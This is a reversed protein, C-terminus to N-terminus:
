RASPTLPGCLERSVQRLPWRFQKSLSSSQTGPDKEGCLLHGVIRQVASFTRTDLSDALGSAQMLQFVLNVGPPVEAAGCRSDSLSISFNVELQATVSSHAADYAMAAVLLSILVVASGQVLNHLVGGSCTAFYIDLLADVRHGDHGAKQDSDPLEREIAAALHEFSARIDKSSCALDWSPLASLGRQVVRRTVDQLPRGALRCLDYHLSRGLGVNSVFRWANQRLSKSSPLSYHREGSSCAPSAAGTTEALRRASVPATAASWSKRVPTASAKWEAVDPDNPARASQPRHPAAGRSTSASASSGARAESDTDVWARIPQSGPPRLRHVSLLGDSVSPTDKSQYSSNESVACARLRPNSLAQPRDAMSPM